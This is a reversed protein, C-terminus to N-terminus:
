VYPGGKSTLTAVFCMRQRLAWFSDSVYVLLKANVFHLLFLAYSKIKTVVIPRVSNRKSLSLSAVPLSSHVHLVCVCVHVCLCVCLVVRDFFVHTRFSLAAHIFFM